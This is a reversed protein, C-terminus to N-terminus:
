GFIIDKNGKFLKDKVYYDQKLMWDKKSQKFIKIDELVLKTM